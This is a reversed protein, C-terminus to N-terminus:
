LNNGLNGLKSGKLSIETSLTDRNVGIKELRETIDVTRDQSNGLSGELRPDWRLPKLRDRICMESGM